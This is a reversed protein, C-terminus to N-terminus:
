HEKAKCLVVTWPLPVRAEIIEFHESLLNLFASKSWHQLHGPTNGRASLYKGRAMNMARWLPERPVSFLAYNRSIGLLSLLAKEPNKLHELVECCVILCAADHIADLNYIDRVQFLVSPYTKKAQEIIKFSFDSARVRTNPIHSLVGSLHGVGCGVEHIDFCGTQKVMQMVDKLFRSFLFRAVPNNSAYKDYVNGVIVGDETRM